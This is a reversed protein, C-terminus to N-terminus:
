VLQAYVSALGAVVAQWYETRVVRGQEIQLGGVGGATLWNVLNSSADGDYADGSRAVDVSITSDGIATAIADRVMTKLELPAGGGVLVGGSAMGHFAVCYAFGRNAIQGLAPFSRPSIKTSTIHWREYAGGGPKYGKCIWSSCGLQATLTEAQLHTNIEIAGGHPAIVLLGTQSGDDVLREVLEGAAEAEADSLGAAVVPMALTAAFDASTGLRLRADLGLRVVNPNDQKRKEAVTYLAYESANRTLRIQDGVLVDALSKPVSCGQEDAIFTQSGLAARIQVQSTFAALPAALDLQPAPEPEFPDGGRWEHSEADDCGQALLSMGVGMGLLFERREL